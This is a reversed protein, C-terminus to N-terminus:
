VKVYSVLMTHGHIQNSFISALYVFPKRLRMKQFIVRALKNKNIKKQVMLDVYSNLHYKQLPEYIVKEVELNFLRAISILSKTNWLGMHHPPSNLVFNKTLRIFSDNNPVAIILKGGIKLCDIQAKIFSQVETIHELVQFSCVIDYNEKNLEAYEQVTKNHAKLGKDKAKLVSDENLELGTINFGITEMKNVFDFAGSGIELIKEHGKLFTEVIKHEWKYPMYYWDFEQLQQYFFSDGEINFPYYFRYSTHICEYVGIKKINKFYKSVDIKLKKQYQIILDEVLITTLLKAQYNKNLTSSIINKM